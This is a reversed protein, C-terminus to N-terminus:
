KKEKKGAISEQKGIDRTRNLNTREQEAQIGDGGSRDGKSGTM